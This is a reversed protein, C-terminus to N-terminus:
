ENFHRPTYFGLGPGLRNGFLMLKFKMCGAVSITNLPVCKVDTNRIWSMKTHIRIRPDMGRVLPDPHPNEDKVKFLGVFFLNKKFFNEQKNSKSAVNVDNKLSFFDFLLLL